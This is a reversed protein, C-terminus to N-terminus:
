ADGWYFELNQFPLNIAQIHYFANARQKRYHYDRLAQTTVFLNNLIDPHFLEGHMNLLAMLDFCVYDEHESSPELHRVYRQYSFLHEQKTRQEDGYVVPTDRLLQIFLPNDVPDAGNVAFLSQRVCLQLSDDAYLNFLVRDAKLLQSELAFNQGNHIIMFAEASYLERLIPDNQILPWLANKDEYLDNPLVLQLPPLGPTELRDSLTNTHVEAEYDAVVRLQQEDTLPPYTEPGDRYIAQQLACTYSKAKNQQRKVFPCGTKCLHLYRCARCEPYLSAQQHHRQITEHANHLLHNVPETLLNGYYFTPDSMGRVCSCLDGNGQLLFFKDGCNAANTCYAPTFEDFWNRRLGEELDTGLFTTRMTQYFEVQEKESLMQSVDSGPADFGFMFNFQNMDFGFERHIRWIDNILEPLRQFHDRYITASIKKAHPYHALAKLATEIQPLTSKGGADLRHAAHLSLPLDVSGSISVRHQIFLDELAVFNLLNTKIHPSFKRFGQATLLDFHRRYHANITQFLAALTEPPLVTVEGGHLSLNFPVVDAALLRKLATQLTTVARQADDRLNPQRTQEGLYCYSCGMNCCQTPAYLLHIFRTM